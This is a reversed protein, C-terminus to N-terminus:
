EKDRYENLLHDGRYGKLQISEEPGEHDFWETWQKGTRSWFQYRKQRKANKSM